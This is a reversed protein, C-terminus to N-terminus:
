RIGDPVPTAKEISCPREGALLTSPAAMASLDQRAPRVDPLLKEQESGGSSCAALSAAAGLLALSYKWQKMM